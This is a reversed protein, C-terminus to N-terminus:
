ISRRRKLWHKVRWRLDVQVGMHQLYAKVFDTIDGLTKLYRRENGPVHTIHGRWGPLKGEGVEERWIKIIFSHIMRGLLDEGSGGGDQDAALFAGGELRRILRVKM